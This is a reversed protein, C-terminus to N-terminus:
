SDESCKKLGTSSRAGVLMKPNEHIKWDQRSKPCKRDKHARQCKEARAHKWAKELELWGQPDKPCKGTRALKRANGLGQSSRPMKWGQHTEPCKRAKTLKWANKLGLSSEIRKRMATEVRESLLKDEGIKLLREWKCHAKKRWLFNQIKPLTQLLVSLHRLTKRHFPVLVRDCSRVWVQRTAQTHFVKSVKRLIPSVGM